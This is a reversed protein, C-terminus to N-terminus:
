SAPCSAGYLVSMIVTGTSPTFRVEASCGASPGTAEIVVTGDELPSAVDATWGLSTLKAALDRSADDASMNVAFSGSTPGAGTDAPEQGPLAPFWAPLEDLIAGFGEVETTDPADPGVRISLYPTPQGGPVPTLDAGGSGSDASRGPPGASPSSSPAIAPSCAVVIAVSVSALVLIAVLGATRSRDPTV